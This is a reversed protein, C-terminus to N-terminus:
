SGPMNTLINEKVWKECNQTTGNNCEILSIIFFIHIPRWTIYGNNKDSQLSIQINEVSKRFISM